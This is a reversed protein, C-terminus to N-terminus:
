GTRAGEVLHPIIKNTYEISSMVAKNILKEFDTGVGFNIGNRYVIIKPPNKSDWIYYNNWYVSYNNLLYNFRKRLINPMHITELIPYKPLFHLTNTEWDSWVIYRHHIYGCYDFAKEAGKTIEILPSPTEIYGMKAVRVIENFANLPNQIDELTHRCYAYSFFGDPFDLKDHDLDMAVKTRKDPVGDIKIDLIHTAPPFICGGYGCGVDIIYSNPSMDVYQMLTSVLNKDPSWFFTRLKTENEVDSDQISEFDITKLSYLEQPASM